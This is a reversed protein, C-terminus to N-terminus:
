NFHYPKESASIVHRVILSQSALRQLHRGTLGEDDAM